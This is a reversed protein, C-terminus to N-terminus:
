PKRRAQIVAVVPELVSNEIRFNTRQLSTIASQFDLLVREDALELLSITGFTRIGRATAAARAKRDDVLLAATNLEVALSIAEEEGDGLDLCLNTSPSRIEIWDPLNQAWNAVAAPTRPHQLERIVAPPVLVKGFLHRLIEVHGILVLYNLPATDSVVLSM